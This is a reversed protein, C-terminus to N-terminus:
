RCRNMIGRDRRESAEAEDAAALLADAVDRAQKASMRAPSIAPVDTDATLYVVGPDHEPTHWVCIVGLDGTPEGRRVMHATPMTLPVRVTKM